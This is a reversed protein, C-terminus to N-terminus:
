DGGNRELRVSENSIDLSLPGALTKGRLPVKSKFIRVGGAPIDPDKDPRSSKAWTHGYNLTAFYRSRVNVCDQRQTWRSPPWPCM